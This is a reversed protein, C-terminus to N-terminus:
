YFIIVTGPEGGVHYQQGATLANVAAAGAGPLKGCAALWPVFGGGYGTQPQSGGGPGGGGAFSQVQNTPLVFTTQLAIGYGAGFNVNPATSALGGNGGPYYPATNTGPLGNEIAGIGGQGPTHIDAGGGGGGGAWGSGGTGGNTNTADTGHTGGPVSAITFTVNSLTTATVVTPEGDQNPYNNNNLGFNGFGGNGVLINLQLLSSANQVSFTQRMGSGGGGGGVVPTTNPTSAGSSGGGGVLWLQLANVGPPIPWVTPTESTPVPPNNFEVFNTFGQFVGTSGTAGTSGTPGTSGTSGTGGQGGQAGPLGTMGTAGTLGMGTAGTAGTAGTSGTGGQLGQAGTQGTQGTPGPSGTDGPLGTGGTGGTPGIRVRREIWPCSESWGHLLSPKFWLDEWKIHVTYIERCIREIDPEFTKRRRKRKYDCPLDCLLGQDFFTHM